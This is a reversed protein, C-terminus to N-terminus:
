GARPSRGVCATLRGARRLGRGGIQPVNWGTGDTAPRQFSRGREDVEDLPGVHEVRSLDLRDEGNGARGQGRSAKPRRDLRQDGVGAVPTSGLNVAGDGVSRTGLIADTCTM